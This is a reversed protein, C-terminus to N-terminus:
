IKGGADIGAQINEKIKLLEPLRWEERHQTTVIEIAMINKIMGFQRINRVSKQSFLTKADVQDFTIKTDALIAVSNKIKQAYVFSM